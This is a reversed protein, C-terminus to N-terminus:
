NAWAPLDRPFCLAILTPLSCAPALLCKYVEWGGPPAPVAPLVLGMKGTLFPDTTDWSWLALPAPNSGLVGIVVWIKESGM